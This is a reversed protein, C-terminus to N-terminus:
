PTGTCRHAHSRFLDRVIELQVVDREGVGGRGTFHEAGLHADAVGRLALRTKAHVVARFQEGRLLNNRM